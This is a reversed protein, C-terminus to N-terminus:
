APRKCPMEVIYIVPLAFQREVNEVMEFLKAKPRTSEIGVMGGGQVFVHYLRKM